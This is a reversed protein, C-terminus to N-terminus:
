SPGEAELGRNTFNVPSKDVGRPTVDVPDESQNLKRASRFPERRPNSAVKVATFLESEPLDGHCALEIVHM